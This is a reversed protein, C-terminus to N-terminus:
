YGRVSRDSICQDRLAGSSGFVSGSADSHIRHDRAYWCGWRIFVQEALIYFIDKEIIVLGIDTLVLYRRRLLICCEKLLMGADLNQDLTMAIVPSRLFVVKSEACAPCFRYFLRERLLSNGCGSDLRDTVPFFFREAAFLILLAPLPVPDIM